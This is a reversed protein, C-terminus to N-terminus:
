KAEPRTALAQLGAETIELKNGVWQAYGYAVLKNASPYWSAVYKRGHSIALLLEVQAKSM